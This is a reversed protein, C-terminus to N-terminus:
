NLQKASLQKMSTSSELYFLVELKHLGVQDTSINANPRHYKREQFTYFFWKSDKIDYSYQCLRMIVNFSTAKMGM